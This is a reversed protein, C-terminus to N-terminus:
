ICAHPGRKEYINFIELCGTLTVLADMSSNERPTHVYQVDLIQRTNEPIWYKVGVTTQM